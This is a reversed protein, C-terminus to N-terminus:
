ALGGSWTAELQEVGDVSNLSEQFIQDLAVALKM